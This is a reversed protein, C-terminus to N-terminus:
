TIYHTNEMPRAAVIIYWHRFTIESSTKKGNVPIVDKNRNLVTYNTIYIIMIMCKACAAHHVSPPLANALVHNITINQVIIVFTRHAFSKETTAFIFQILSQSAKSARRVHLYQDIYSRISIYEFNTTIYRKYKAQKNFM